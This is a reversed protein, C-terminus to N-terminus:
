KSAVQIVKEFLMAVTLPGVGGIKPTVIFDDRERAAEDLDGKIVGGESATGADVVVAGPQVMESKILGPVGTATVILNYENLKSIDDGKDFVTVNDFKATFPKENSNDFIYITAGEVFLNISRVLCETLYPTNYHIILINKKM